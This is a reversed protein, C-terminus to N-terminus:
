IVCLMQLLVQRPFTVCYRGIFDSSSQVDWLSKAISRREHACFYRAMQDLRTIYDAVTQTQPCVCVGVCFNGLNFGCPWTANLLKYQQSM